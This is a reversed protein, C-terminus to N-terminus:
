TLAAVANAVAANLAAHAAHNGDRDSRLIEVQGTLGHAAVVADLDVQQPTGFLQEFRDHELAQRQPLFSFIGGGRNDIVVIRLPVARAALGLLGNTDHLFALDGIVLTTPLGTAAVGVATSIVGDIGNAGRNALVRVGHRPPAYWELDRVPMSSSVVLASGEAADALVAAIRAPESEPMAALEAEIATRAAADHRQWQAVWDVAPAEPLVARLEEVLAAPRIPFKESLVTAPDPCVGFRDVGIQIAGSGALWEETVRSALLGGCRIVVEPRLREAAATRLLPDFTSVVVPDPVRCGSLADALVPWGLRRALDLVAATEGEDSATRAGTVIVGRRTLLGGLAAVREVPVSLELPDLQPVAAGEPLQAASGLLPEAFALNLHVPGPRWGGAADVADGALRRWWPEPGRAPPVDEHMRVSGGYLRLQNITQPAGTGRLQQPRDATLVVLPVCALDAEVVAPHLEVAATGSTTVVLAPRGTALGCGLALFGASREDLHVQMQLESREAVALALPTSRSGPSVVAHRVGRRIFEDILTRAFTLGWNPEPDESAAESGAAVARNV